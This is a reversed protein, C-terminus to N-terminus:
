DLVLLEFYYDDESLPTLAQQNAKKPCSVTYHGLTSCTKCKPVPPGAKRIRPDSRLWLRTLCDELNAEQNVKRALNRRYFRLFKNNNELGGESYEGLGRTDNNAILEWSHALLAHMTPSINIWKNEANDFSHLIHDYTKLCFDKFEGVDVKRKSTYVRLITWLRCLLTRYQDKFRDPVFSVLLSRHDVLLRKCLDGKNANGGQGTPDAADLPLGTQQEIEHKINEEANLLHRYSLGLIIQSRTWQFIGANLYYLLKKVFDFCRLLAHLPSVSIVSDDSVLPMQTLGKRDAYSATTDVTGDPLLLREYDDMTESLSRNISFFDEVNVPLTTCSRGSATDAPVTCLLCFAGGLGTLLGRMKADIMSLQAEVKVSYEKGKSEIM